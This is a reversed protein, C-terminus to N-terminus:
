PRHKSVVGGWVAPIEAFLKEMAKQNALRTTRDRTSDDWSIAHCTKGASRETTAYVYGTRTDVLAALATAIVETRDNPFFGLTFLSLPALLKGDTVTTELKVLLVADCHLRAAAERLALDSKNWIPMPRGDPGALDGGNSILLSSVNVVNTVRPLSKLADLKGDADLARFAIQAEGDMPALGITAPYRMAPKCQYARAILPNSFEASAKARKAAVAPSNVYSRSCGSLLTFIAVAAAVLLLRPM